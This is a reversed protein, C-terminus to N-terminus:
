DYSCHLINLTRMAGTKKHMSGFRSHLAKFYLYDVGNVPLLCPNQAQETLFNRNLSFGQNVFFMNITDLYQPVTPFPSAKKLNNTACM